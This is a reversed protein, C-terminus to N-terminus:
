YAKDLDLDVRVCLGEDYKQAHLSQFTRLGRVVLRLGARFSIKEPEFDPSEWQSTDIRSLIESPSEAPDEPEVGNINEITNEDFGRGEDMAAISLVNGRVYFGMQVETGPEYRNGGKAANHGLELTVTGLDYKLGKSISELRERRGLKMALNGAAADMIESLADDYADRDDSAFSVEYVTESPIFGLREALNMIKSESMM